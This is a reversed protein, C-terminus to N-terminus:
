KRASTRNKKHLPKDWIEFIFDEGKHPQNLISTIERFVDDALITRLGSRVKPRDGTYLGKEWLIEGMPENNTVVCDDRKRAYFGYTRQSVQGENDTYQIPFNITWRHNANNMHQVHIYFSISKSESLDLAAIRGNLQHFLAFPSSPGIGTHDECAAFRDALPGIAALSLLPHPSRKMDPHRRAAETLAGMKSPSTRIDFTMNPVIAINFLPLILTGKPGIANLFSQLVDEPTIPVKYRNARHLTRKLSTHLFLIDGTQVGSTRWQQTLETLIQSKTKTKM